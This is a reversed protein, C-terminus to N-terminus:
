EDDYHGGAEHEHHVPDHLLHADEEDEDDNNCHDEQVQPNTGVYSFKEM